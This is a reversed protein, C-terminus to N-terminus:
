NYKEMSGVLLFREESNRYSCTSLQVIKQVSGIDAKTKFGSSAVASSLYSNLTASDSLINYSKSDPNAYYGAIVSIRYTTDPTYIWIYPHKEYFEQNTYRLIYAFMTGNKMSHGYLLTNIDEFMNRNRMDIFVTGAKNKTGDILHTLYYDYDKYDETKVIPYNIPTNPCYIWGIVDKNIKQVASFDVSIPSVSLDVSEGGSKTDENGGSTSSVLSVANGALDEYTSKGTKYEKQTKLLMFLSVAFILAFFIAALRLVSNKRCRFKESIITIIDNIRKM